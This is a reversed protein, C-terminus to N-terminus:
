LDLMKFVFYSLMAEVEDMKKRKIKVDTLAPIHQAFYIQNNAMELLNTALSKPYPFKPNVEKIVGAIKKALSKYNLFFGEKNEQDIAKIHYAKTGEAIVVRNLADRDIYNAPTSLRVTDVITKIIISLREKPDKVNMSNFDIRFRVWEWYWSLLYVLFYHKNEFYRYISAETSAIKKALKRFTFAELGIEDLLFIGEKIIKQGLKSQQPDRLFLKDSVVIQVCAFSM